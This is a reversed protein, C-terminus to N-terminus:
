ITEMTQAAQQIARPMAQRRAPAARMGALRAFHGFIRFRVQADPDGRMRWRDADTLNPHEIVMARHLAYGDHRLVLLVGRPAKRNLIVARRVDASPHAALTALRAPSTGPHRAVGALVDVDTCRALRRLLPLPLDDRYAVGARVWAVPDAGLRELLGAPCGPHRAACRRVEPEPDAAALVLWDVPCGPNRAVTRRVWPDTDGLLWGAMRAALDKRGAVARRVGADGDFCCALLADAPIAPHAAAARRVAPDADAALQRLLTGPARAQQALCRRELASAPLAQLLSDPCHPHLLIQARVAVGNGEDGEDGQGADRWLAQLTAEGTALNIALLRQLVPLHRQQLAALVDAAVGANECLACLIEEQATDDAIQALVARPMHAHRALLLRMRESRARPWLAALCDAPAAPNRALRQGVMADDRAEAGLRALVPPAVFAASALLLRDRRAEFLRPALWQRHVASAYPYLAAAPYPEADERARRLLEMWHRGTFKM